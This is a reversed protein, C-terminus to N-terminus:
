PRPLLILFNTKPDIAKAANLPLMIASEIQLPLTPNRFVIGELMVCGVKVPARIPVFVCDGKQFLGDASVM